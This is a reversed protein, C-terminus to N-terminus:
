QPFVSSGLLFASFIFVSVWSSRYVLRCCRLIHSPDPQGDGNGLWPKDVIGEQYVSPGGLKMGLAGSLFSEPHGANPSSHKLRDRLAIKWGERANEGSFVAGIYLIILSLRAPLFNALDDLRAAPRGFLLYHDSQYGVMSDLTNIVKFGLM